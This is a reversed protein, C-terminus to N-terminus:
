IEIGEDQRSSFRESYRCPAPGIPPRLALLGMKVLLEDQVIEPLNNFEPVFDDHLGVTWTVPDSHRM